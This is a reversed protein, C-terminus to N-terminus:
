SYWCSSPHLPATAEFAHVYLQCYNYLSSDLLCSSPLSPKQTWSSLSDIKYAHTHIRGLSGENQEALFPLLTLSNTSNTNVQSRSTGINTSRNVSDTSHTFTHRHLTILRVVLLMPFSPAATSSSRNPQWTHM